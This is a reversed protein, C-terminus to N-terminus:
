ARVVNHRLSDRYPKPCPSELTIMPPHPLPNEPGLPDISKSLKYYLLSATLGSGGIFDRAQNPDIEGELITKTSLDILLLRNM